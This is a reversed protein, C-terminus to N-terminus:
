GSRKRISWAPRPPRRITRWVLLLFGAGLIMLVAPQDLMPGGGFCGDKVFDM